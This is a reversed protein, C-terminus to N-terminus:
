TLVLVALFFLGLLILFVSCGTTALIALYGRAPPAVGEELDIEERPLIGKPIRPQKVAAPPPGVSVPMSSPRSFRMRLTGSRTVQPLQESELTPDDARFGDVSVGVSLSGGGNPLTIESISERRNALAILEDAFQAMWDAAHAGGTREALTALGTAVRSLGPRRNSDWDLMGVLWDFYRDALPPGSRSMLRLQVRRVAAQHAAEDVPPDLFVGAALQAWFVGLRFVLSSEDAGGGISWRAPGFPGVFGALKITGGPELWVDIPGPGPHTCGIEGLDDLVQAVAATVEAAARASLWEGDPELTQNLPLGACPSHVWVLRGELHEVALLTLVAPHCIGLFPAAVLRARKLQDVGIESGRLALVEDGRFHAHFAEPHWKLCREALTLSPTASSLTGEVCPRRTGWRSVKADSM